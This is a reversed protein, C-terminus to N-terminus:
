AYAVTHWNGNVNKQLYRFLMVGVQNGENGNGGTVVAGWPAETLAGDTIIEGRSALRIDRVFNQNVYDWTARANVDRNHAGWDVRGSVQEIVADWLWKNGWRSGLINGDSAHTSNGVKLTGTVTANRDVYLDEGVSINKDARIYKNVTLSDNMGVFHAFTVQGTKINVSFPRLNNWTGYPDKAKTLLLYLSNGDNRWFTGYDGAVIRYNDSSTSQIEGTVKGGRSDFQQQWGSWNGNVNTAVYLKRSHSLFLYHHFQGNGTDAKLDARNTTYLLSGWGEPTWKSNEVSWPGPATPKADGSLTRNAGMKAAFNNRVDAAQVEAATPRQRDTYVKTWGNEYGFGDRSSRFALGGNGYNFRFDAARTSGTGGAAFHVVMTMGDAQTNYVGSAANWAVDKTIETTGRAFYRSDSESKSYVNIDGPLPKNGPSYVRGSADSVTKGKIIGQAELNGQRVDIFLSRGKIGVTDCTNYFGIGQWSKIDVNCTAYSAGDGNGPYVGGGNDNRGPVQIKVGGSARIEKKFEGGESASVADVDGAKPKNNPSYVRKGAEILQGDATINRQMRLDGTRVDIFGTIGQEGITKYFGIGNWSKLLLNAGNYSAGDAGNTIGNNPSVFDIGANFQTKGTVTGGSKLLFRNDSETKSYANVDGATPKNDETYIRSWRVGNEPKNSSGIWAAGNAPSIAVYGTSPGGDAPLSIIGATANMPPKNASKADARFIQGDNTYVDDRHRAGMLLGGAGVEMVQGKTTGVDRLAASKLGLNDRARPKDTLDALNAAKKASADNVAKVAKPTAALQSSDLNPNDSLQVFGKATTTGDPHNRSREHAKLAENAKEQQKKLWLTRNALQKAPKNSVGDPGGLVPDSTELQYIGDEWQDKETLNSM